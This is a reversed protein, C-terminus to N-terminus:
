TRDSGSLEHLEDFIEMIYDLGKNAEDAWEDKQINRISQIADKMDDFQYFLGSGSVKDKMVQGGYMIALYNLYIHPLIDEDYLSNLYTEYDHTAYLMMFDHTDGGLEALDAALHKMRYLSSHPLEHVELASFIVYMQQLYIIYELKSLEGRIMRVNFPKQEAERHKTEIAEKLLSM